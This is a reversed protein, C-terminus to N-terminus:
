EYISVCSIFGRKLDWV